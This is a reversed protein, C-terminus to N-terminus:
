NPTIIRPQNTKTPDPLEAWAYLTVTCGEAPLEPLGFVKGDWETFGYDHMVQDGQYIEFIAMKPGIDTPLTQPSNFTFIIEHKM